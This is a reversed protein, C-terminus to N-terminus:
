VENDGLPATQEQDYPEARNARLYRNSNVLARPCIWRLLVQELAFEM